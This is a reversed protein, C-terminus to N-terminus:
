KEKIEAPYQDNLASAIKASIDFEDRTYLVDATAVIVGVEAPNTASVSLDQKKLVLDIEHRQAHESVTRSIKNFMDSLAEVRHKRVENQLNQKTQRYEGLQQRLKDRKEDAADSGPPLNEYESRLVQIQQEAKNLTREVKRQLRHHEEQFDAWEQSQGLVKDLDIVALKLARADADERNTEGAQLRSSGTGLALCLALSFAAFAVHFRTSRRM